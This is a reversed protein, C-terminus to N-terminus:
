SLCEPDVVCAELANAFPKALFDPQDHAPVSLGSGFYYNASQIANSVIMVYYDDMAMARNFDAIAETKRSLKKLALARRFHLASTVGNFRSNGLVATTFAVVEPYRKLAYLSAAKAEQADTNGPAMLLATNADDLAGSFDERFRRVTARAAHSRDDDPYNALLWAADAEAKDLISNRAAALARDNLVMAYFDFDAEGRRGYYEVPGVAARGAAIIKDYEAIQRRYDSDHCGYHGALNYRTLYHDPHDRLIAEYDRIAAACQNSYHFRTFAIAFLADPNDPAKELFTTFDAIAKLGNDLMLNTWGRRRWIQPDSPDRKVAEDLYPLATGPRHAFYFAAGIRFNVQARTRDDLASDKLLPYCAELAPGAEPYYSAALCSQVPTSEAASAHSPLLAYATLFVIVSWRM